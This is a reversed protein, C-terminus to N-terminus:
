LEQVERYGKWSMPCLFDQELLMRYLVAAPQDNPMISLARELLMKSTEWEGKEYALVALRFVQFFEEEILAKLRLLKKSYSFRLFAHFGPSTMEEQLDKKKKKAIDKTFYRPTPDLMFNTEVDFAYIRMPYQSARFLVTDIHRCRNQVPASFTEYLSSSFVVSVGYKKTLEQLKETIIVHPSLYSVDIKLDSGMPGEIAWGSHLGFGLKVTYNNMRRLLQPHTNYRLIHPSSSLYSLIKLCAIVSLDALNTIYSLSADPPPKWVFLFADGINKNPAGLHSTVTYHVIAAIENIFVMVAEQLVETTDTFNRVDCMGFIAKIKTGELMLNVKGTKEFNASIIASGAEGFSLGLLASIKLLSNELVATEKERVSGAGCCRQVTDLDYVDKMGEEMPLLPNASIRKVKHMMKEIPVIVMDNADRTLYYVGITFALCIFLTRCLSLAAELKTDPRLDFVAVVDGAVAIYKEALRLSDLSESGSWVLSVEPYQISLFLLPRSDVEHYTIFKKVLNLWNQTGISNNITNVGYTWSTESQDIFVSVECIPLLILLLLVICIVRKTTLETLKRGIRSELPIPLDDQVQNLNREVAKHTARYLRVLRLIRFLRLFRVIKTTRSGARSARFANQAPVVGSQMGQGFASERVLSVDPVLSVTSLIDLWCYLSWRYERRLWLALVLELTFVGIVTLLCVDTAIDARKSLTLLRVDDGVLSFVTFVVLLVTVPPFQCLHLLIQRLSTRSPLLQTLQGSISGSVRCDIDRVDLYIHDQMLSHSSSDAPVHNKKSNSTEMM